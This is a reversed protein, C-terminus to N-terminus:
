EPQGGSAREQAWASPCDWEVEHPSAPENGSACKEHLPNNSSKAGRKPDDAQVDETFGPLSV